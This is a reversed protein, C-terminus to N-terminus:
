KKYTNRRKHKRSKRSKKSRRSKRSKRSRRRGGGSSGSAVTVPTTNAYASLGPGDNAANAVGQSYTQQSNNSVTTSDNVSNSKFTSPTNNAQLTYGGYQKMKKGGSSVKTVSTINSPATSLAPKSYVQYPPSQLNPNNNVVM